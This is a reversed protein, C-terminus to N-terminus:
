MLLSAKLGKQSMLCAAAKSAMSRGLRLHATSPNSSAKKASTRPLSM